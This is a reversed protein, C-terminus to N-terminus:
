SGRPFLIQALRAWRSRPSPDWRPLAARPAPIGGHCPPQLDQRGETKKVGQAGGRYSVGVVEEVKLRQM